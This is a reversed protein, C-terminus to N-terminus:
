MVFEDMKTSLEAGADGMEVAESAYIRGAYDMLGTSTMGQRTRLAAENSDACVTTNQERM